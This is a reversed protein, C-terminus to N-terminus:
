QIYDLHQTAGRLDGGHWGQPSAPDYGRQHRGPHGTAFRDTMILYMVDASSFGQYRGKVPVRSKWEFDATASGAANTARIQLVTPSTQKREVWLFAYHGNESARTKVLRAGPGKVTINADKLGEGYVLLIPDPLGVWWNPPDIKTIKPASGQAVVNAAVLGVMLLLCVRSRLRFRM